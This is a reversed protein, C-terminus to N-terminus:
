RKKHFAHQPFPRVAPAALAVQVQQLLVRADENAPNCDLAKSYCEPKSFACGSIVGGGLNGFCVWSDSRSPDLELARAFCEKQTLLRVSALEGGGAKGIMEFADANSSSMSSVLWKCAIDVFTNDTPSDGHVQRAVEQWSSVAPDWLAVLVKGLHADTTESQSLSECRMQVLRRIAKAINCMRSLVRRRSEHCTEREQLETSAFAEAIAKEVVLQNLAKETTLAEYKCSLLYLCTGVIRDVNFVITAKADDCEDLKGFVMSMDVSDTPNFVRKLYKTIDQAVAEKALKPVNSELHSKLKKVFEPFRQLRFPGEDEALCAFAQELWAEYVEKIPLNLCLDSCSDVLFTNTLVLELESKSITELEKELYARLPQLSSTFLLQKALRVLPKLRRTAEESAAELLQALADGHLASSGRPLGLAKLEECCSTWAALLRNVTEPLWTTIVHKAYVSSVKSMLAKISARDESIEDQMGNDNFSQVEAVAQRHMLSHFSENDKQPFVKSAIGVFGHPQLQLRDDGAFNPDLWNRLDDVEHMELRDCRTIVGITRDLLGNESILRSATWNAPRITAQVVWLFIDNDGLNTIQRILLKSTQESLEESSSIIGPLDIFNLPPLSTSTVKIHLEFDMSVEQGSCHELMIDDMQRRIEVESKSLSISRPEGVPQKKSVDWVVLTPACQVTARRITVKVPMRTCRSRHTPFLPLLCLRQLLTSKGVSEGGFVVLRPASWSGLTDVMLDELDDLASFMKSLDQVSGHQGAEPIPSSAEGWNQLFSAIEEGLATEAECDEGMPVGSIPSTIQGGADRCNRFHMELPAQDYVNGDAARVPKKMICWTTKDLFRIDVARTGPNSQVMSQAQRLKKQLGKMENALVTNSDLFDQIANRFAISPTLTTNTLVEGTLPNTSHGTDFWGQIWEREYNHGSATCVPDIMIERSLPCIMDRPVEM